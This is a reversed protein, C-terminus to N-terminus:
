HLGETTIGTLQHNPLQTWQITVVDAETRAYALLYTLLCALLCTPLYTPLDTLLCTLLYDRRTGFVGNVISQLFGGAGTLFPTCGGHLTERWVYYPPQARPPEFYTLLYTRLYTRRSHM